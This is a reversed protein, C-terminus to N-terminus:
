LGILLGILVTSLVGIIVTLDEKIGTSPVDTTETSDTDDTQACSTTTTSEATKTTSNYTLTSHNTFSKNLASTPYDIHFTYQLTQGEQITQNSWNIQNNSSDITGNNNISNVWAPDINSDLTETLSFTIDELDNNADEGYNVTITYNASYGTDVCTGSAGSSITLDGPIPTPTPTPTPTDAVTATPTPTNTPTTTVTTPTETKNTPPPNTCSNDTQIWLGSGKPDCIYWKCDTGPSSTNPDVCEKSGPCQPPKCTLDKQVIPNNHCDVCYSGTSTKVFTGGLKDCAEKDIVKYTDTTCKGNYCIGQTNKVSCLAGNKLDQCPDATPPKRDDEPPTRTPPPTPTSPSKCGCSGAVCTKIQGNACEPCTAATTCGTDGEAFRAQQNTVVKNKYLFGISTLSLLLVSVIILIQKSHSINKLSTLSIAQGLKKAEHSKGEKYANFEM